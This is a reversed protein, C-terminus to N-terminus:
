DSAPPVREALDDLREEVATLRAELARRRRKRLRGMVVVFGIPFMLPCVIPFIPFPPRGQWPGGHHGCEDVAPEASM